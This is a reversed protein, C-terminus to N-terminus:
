SCLIIRPQVEQDHVQFGRLILARNCLLGSMWFDDDRFSHVRVLKWFHTLTIVERHRWSKLVFLTLAIMFSIIVIKFLHIMMKGSITLQHDFQDNIPRIAPHKLNSIVTDWVLDNSELNRFIEDKFFYVLIMVCQLRPWIKPVAFHTWYWTNSVRPKLSKLLNCRHQHCINSVVVHLLHQHRNRDNQKRINM